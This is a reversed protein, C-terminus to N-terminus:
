ARVTSPHQAFNMEALHSNMEGAKVLRIRLEANRYFNRWAFASFFALGSALLTVLSRLLLKTPFLRLLAMM